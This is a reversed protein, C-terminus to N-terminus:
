CTDTLQEVSESGVKLSDNEYQETIEQIQQKQAETMKNYRGILQRVPSATAAPNTNIVVEAQEEKRKEEEHLVADVMMDDKRAQKAPNAGAKRAGFFKRHSWGQPYMEDKKM